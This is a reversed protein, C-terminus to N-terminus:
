CSPREGAQDDALIQHGAGDDVTARHDTHHQRLTGIQDGDWRQTAERQLLRDVGERCRPESEAPDVADGFTHQDARLVLADVHQGALHEDRPERISM